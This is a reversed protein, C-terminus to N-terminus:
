IITYDRQELGSAVADRTEKIIDNLERENTNISPHLRITVRPWFIPMLTGPPMAEGVGCISVPIILAKAKQAM